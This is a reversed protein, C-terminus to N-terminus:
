ISRPYCVGECVEADLFGGGIDTCVLCTLHCCEAATCRTRSEVRCVADPTPGSNSALLPALDVHKPADAFSPPAFSLSLFVALTLRLSKM